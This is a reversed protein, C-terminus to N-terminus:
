TVGAAAAARRATWVRLAVSSAMRSAARAANASFPKSARVISAIARLANTERV